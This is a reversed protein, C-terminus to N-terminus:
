DGHKGHGNGHGRHHKGDRDHDRDHDTGRDHDRQEDHRKEAKAPKWRKYKGRPIEVLRVPVARAPMAMWGGRVVRSRYWGGDRRCWYYGDTFFVEEEVEPVVQIGPTVVVLQPMVVPLNLRLDVTASASQASGVLPLALLGALVIIKKM